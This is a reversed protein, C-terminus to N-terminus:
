LAFNFIILFVFIMVIIFANIVCLINIKMLSDAIKKNNVEYNNIIKELEKKIIEITKEEPESTLLSWNNIPDFEQRNKPKYNNHLIIISSIFILLFLFILIYNIISIIEFVDFKILVGKSFLLPEIVSFAAFFIGIITYYGLSKAELRDKRSIEMKYKDYIKDLIYKKDM